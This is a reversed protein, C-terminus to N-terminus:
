YTSGPFTNQIVQQTTQFIPNLPRTIKMFTTFESHEPIKSTEKIFLNVSRRQVSFATQSLHNLNQKHTGCTPNKFKLLLLPLAVSLLILMM